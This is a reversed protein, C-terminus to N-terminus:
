CADANFRAPFPLCFDVSKRLNKMKTPKRQYAFPGVVVVTRFILLLIYKKM